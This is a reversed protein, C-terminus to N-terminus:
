HRTDRYRRDACTPSATEHPMQAQMGWWALGHLDARTRMLLLREKSIVLLQQAGVDGKEVSFESVPQHKIVGLSGM